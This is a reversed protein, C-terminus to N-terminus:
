ELLVIQKRNCRGLAWGLWRRWWGTDTLGCRFIWFNFEFTLSLRKVVRTGWIWHEEGETSRRPWRIIEQLRSASSICTPTFDLTDKRTRSSGTHCRWMFMWMGLVWHGGSRMIKGMLSVRGETSRGDAEWSPLSSAKCGDRGGGEGEDGEATCPASRRNWMHTRLGTTEEGISRYSVQKVPVLASNWWIERQCWKVSHSM